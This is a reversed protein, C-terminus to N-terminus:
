GDRRRRQSSIYSSEVIRMAAEEGQEIATGVTHKAVPDIQRKSEARPTFSSQVKAALDGQVKSEGALIKAKQNM